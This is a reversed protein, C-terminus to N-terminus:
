AAEAKRSKAYEVAHELTIRVRDKDCLQISEIVFHLIIQNSLTNNFWNGQQTGNLQIMKLAGAAQSAPGAECALAGTSIFLVM